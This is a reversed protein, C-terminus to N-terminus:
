VRASRRGAVGFGRVCVACGHCQDDRGSRHGPGRSAGPIMFQWEDDISLLVYRSQLVWDIDNMLGTNRKSSSVAM